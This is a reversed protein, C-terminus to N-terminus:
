IEDSIKEEEKRNMTGLQKRTERKEVFGMQYACKKGVKLRQARIYSLDLSPLKKEKTCLCTSTKVHNGSALSCTIDEVCGRTKKHPCNDLACNIDKECCMIKKHSCRPLTCTVVEICLISCQCNILDLLKDLQAELKKKINAWKWLITNVDNWVRILKQAFVADTM